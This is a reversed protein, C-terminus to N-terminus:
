LDPDAVSILFSFFRQSHFVKPTRHAFPLTSWAFAAPECAADYEQFFFQQKFRSIISKGTRIYRLVEKRSSVLLHLDIWRQPDPIYIGSEFKKWGPDEFFKLIKVL